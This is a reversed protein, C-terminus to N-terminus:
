KVELSRAPMQLATTIAGLLQKPTFPKPLILTAGLKQAMPLYDINGQRGGGSIAILRLNPHRERLALILEIGDLEPMMIDSIVLDVSQGRLVELAKHGDSAELVAHNANQLALRISERVLADDDIVLIRTM